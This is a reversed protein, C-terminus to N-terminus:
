DITNAFEKAIDMVIDKQKQTGMSWFVLLKRYEEPLNFINNVLHTIDRMAEEKSSYEGLGFNKNEANAINILADYFEDIRKEGITDFLLLEVPEARLEIIDGISEHHVIEKSELFDNPSIFDSYGLLYGASVGFYDALQQAKDPKINSEGNEWRQLTRINVNVIDSLAKQSLGKEKRLEQLRSM